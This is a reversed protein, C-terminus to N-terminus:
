CARTEEAGEFTFDEGQAEVTALVYPSTLTQTAVCGDGPVTETFQVQIRGGADSALVEDVEVGYGGTPRQGLVIAVVVEEDFDVPPREPVSSRDAHLREWFSAYVEETRLVSQTGEVIDGYQGQDIQDVSVAGTNLTQTAVETTFPVDDTDNGIGSCGGGVILLLTTLLVSARRAFIWQKHTQSAFDLM